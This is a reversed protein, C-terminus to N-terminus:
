VQPKALEGQPGQPALGGNEKERLAQILELKSMRGYTDELQLKMGILESLVQRASPRERSENHLCKAILKELPHNKGLKTSIQEMQQSRREVETLGIVKGPNKPDPRTAASLHPFEQVAVYLALHGFSFVDITSNYKPNKELAEPPM